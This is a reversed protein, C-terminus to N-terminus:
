LVVTNSVRCTTVDVAQLTLGCHAAGVSMMFHVRGAPGAQRFRFLQPASIALMAGQCPMGPKVFSGAVGHVLAVSSGPTSNTITFEIPGPCFGTKTLQLDLPLLNNVFIDLSGNGDGPVLNTADSEFAVTRGDTFLTPYWNGGSQRNGQAGASSLSVLVTEGTQRDHTFVDGLGNTDSPVLNSADSYFAVTRGDASLTPFDSNQNSEVGTSSLNVRTTLGTQRDHVFLDGYGNTDGAVLNNAASKFAVHRGDGSLSPYYSDWNGAAGASNVSVRSTRGSLRDHVFVDQFGNADGPVLNSASSWFAVTSGDASISLGYVGSEGNAQGGSSSVSVRKTQGTQCDHLFVDFLGNTDGPVLNSALSEFAVYRGTASLVSNYSEANAPAGASSVSVRRNQGTQLDHVFIDMLTGSDGTVLNNARSQFSVFRGNGSISPTSSVNNAQNGSSSVNVRRTVGTQRNHVFIDFLGNTDRAALNSSLSDFAVLRGDDSLDLNLSRSNGEAGASSVSVRETTQATATAALLIFATILSPTLSTTM